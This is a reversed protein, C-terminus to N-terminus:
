GSLMKPLPPPNLMPVIRNRLTLMARPNDEALPLWKRM